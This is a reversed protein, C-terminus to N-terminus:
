VVIVDVEPGPHESDVFAIGVKRYVSTQGDVLEVIVAWENHGPCSWLLSCRDLRAKTTLSKEEEDKRPFWALFARGQLPGNTCSVIWRDWGTFIERLGSSVANADGIDQTVEQLGDIGNSTMRVESHHVARTLLSLIASIDGGVQSLNWILKGLEGSGDGYAATGYSSIKCIGSATLHLVLKTNGSKNTWKQQPVVSAM